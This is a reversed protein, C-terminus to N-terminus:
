GSRKGGSEDTTGEVMAQFEEVWKWSWRVHVKALKAAAIVQGRAEAIEPPCIPLPNQYEPSLWLTRLSQRKKVLTLVKLWCELIYENWGYWDDDFWTDISAALYRPSITLLTDSSPFSLDTYYLTKTEFSKLTTLGSQLEGVDISIVVLQNLFDHPLSPIYAQRPQEDSLAALRLYRLSPLCERTLLCETVSQRMPSGILTLRVLSPLVFGFPGTFDRRFICGDISLTHLGALRRHTLV